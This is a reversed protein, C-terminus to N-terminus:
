SANRAPNGRAATPRQRRITDVAASVDRLARTATRVAAPPIAAFLDAHAAATARVAREALAVGPGTLRILSSRGDTPDPERVVLGQALLHNTVNSTGGTSLFLGRSLEAPRMRYPKGARRLAVIVDYEAVTLGLPPLERRTAEALDASLLMIRKMLESSPGIVDPLESQWSAILEDVRDRHATM